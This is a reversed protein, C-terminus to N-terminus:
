EAGYYFADDPLTGGISAPDGDNLVALYGSLMEKMEDGTIAVINCNPIAILAVAEPVIEYGGILAAAGEIDSNVYDVSDKYRDLFAEVALPNEKIFDTRAVLVGTILSSPNESDAEVNDWEETLDLVVTLNENSSKGTTVFPEPLMAVSNETALVSALCEAHDTKWEITVDSDPDIGNESLIYRLAYEPTAGKGSAFITKGVLDSVEAVTSGNEVIYLVGLTNVALVQVGGDTNNYLVSAMNAPVAAIDVEAKAIMPAIQDPASILEFTYNNEDIEGSQAKDMLSVMGMSTPGILAVTRVDVPDLEVDSDVGSESQSESSESSESSSSSEDWNSCGALVTVALLMTLILALIRKM